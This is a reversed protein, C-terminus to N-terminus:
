GNLLILTQEFTGGRIGIDSQVGMPGRQRIDVGPSYSLIEPISQIPMRKIEENTIIQINRSAESFPTSIRNGSIVIDSMVITTDGQATAMM